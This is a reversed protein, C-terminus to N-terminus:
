AHILLVTHMCWRYLTFLLRFFYDSPKEVQCQFKKVNFFIAYVTNKFLYM